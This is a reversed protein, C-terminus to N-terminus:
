EDYIWENNENTYGYERLLGLEYPCSDDGELIKYLAYALEDAREAYIADHRNLLKIIAMFSDNSM